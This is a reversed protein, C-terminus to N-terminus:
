SFQLSCGPGRHLMLGGGAQSVWAGLNKMGIHGINGAPTNELLVGSFGGLEELTWGCEAPTRTEIRLGSGGVLRPLSSSKTPSVCLLPRNGRVGVLFRARNNEPVPDKGRGEVKLVYQCVGGASATDRFLLRSSGTPVDTKGEAIPEGGRLLQYSITQPRPSDVWAAIMFSEGALVSDPVQIREVALDDAATREIARYDIPVGAAAARAASSSVDRGTWQGDSLVLLRGSEGKGVMSLGLDLADALQSADHGVVSSYSSLEGREPSQEVAATEAFSVVGLKDDPPLSARLLRIAEFQLRESDAPMSLSRDAVVVVTGSRMPLVICLGCLALIAAALAIARLLLLLRSPLQWGLGADGASHGLDALISEDPGRKADGPIPQWPRWIAAWPPWALLGFAWRLSIRRDQHESSDNWNGWRGSVAGRLDSEDRSVANCAFRYTIDGARLSYLGVRDAAVDVQRGRVDLKRVDGAAPTLEVQKVDPPLHISVTQGLRANRPAAGPLRRARWRVLNTFLIPWDDLEQWNSREEAIMGMQLRHRGGPEARDSLLVVNGATIIPTGALKLQAPCSWIAAELSLGECLPHTRDIVFPGVYSASDHQGGVIELRWVDDAAALPAVAGAPQGAAYGTAARDSIVLEPRESVQVTMGTADLVKAVARRLRPEALDLSVRLPKSLDPMLVVSNDIELADADLSARLAPTGAPLNRFFQRAGGPALDFAVRQPPSSGAKRGASSPTTGRSDDEPQLTLVARGPADSLNTVEVLLRDNDATQCRAAATIAMNPLKTGFGRWEVQGGQVTM